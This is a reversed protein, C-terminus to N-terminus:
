WAELRYAGVKLFGMADPMSVRGLMVDMHPAMAQFVLEDPLGGNHGGGVTLWFCDGDHGIQRQLVSRDRLWLWRFRHPRAYEQLMRLLEARVTQGLRGLLEAAEDLSLERVWGWRMIQVRDPAVLHATYNHLTLEALLTSIRKDAEAVRERGAEDSQPEPAQAGGDPADLIM